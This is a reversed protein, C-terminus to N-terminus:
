KEVPSSRIKEAFKQILQDALLRQTEMIDKKFLPSTAEGFITCLRDEKYFVNTRLKLTVSWTLLNPKVYLDIVLHLEQDTDSCKDILEFGHLPLRNKVLKTLEERMEAMHPHLKAPASFECDDYFNILRICVKNVQSVSEPGYAKVVPPSSCSCSLLVIGLLAVRNM